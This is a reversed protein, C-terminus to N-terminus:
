VRRRRTMVAVGAAAAATMMMAWLLVNTSDGTTTEPTPEKFIVFLGDGNSKYKNNADDSYTGDGNPKVEVLGDAKGDNDKDVPIYTKDDSTDDPTGNKDTYSGDENPTAETYPDNENAGPIYTKDEDDDFDGDGNNDASVTGDDNKKTDIINLVISLDAPADNASRMRPFQEGMPNVSITINQSGSALSDLYGRDFQITGDNAVTYSDEEVVETGNLISNITNGNLAVKIEPIDMNIDQTYEYHSEAVSSDTFLVIGESNVITINGANDTAKAYIILKANPDISFEQTYKEWVLGNVDNETLEKDSVYYEIGAIGSYNDSATVKVDKTEKFFKNFTVSNLFEKWTNGNVNIEVSPGAVPITISVESKVEQSDHMDAKVAYARVTYELTKENNLGEEGELTFEEEYKIRTASTSPDTGDITYYIDAGETDGAIAVIVDSIYAGNEKTGKLTIVPAEVTGTITATTTGKIGGEPVDYNGAGSGSLTIVYTVTKDKGVDATEFEGKIDITVRGAEVDAALVPDVAAVELEAEVTGNYERDRASVTFDEKTLAREAVTFVMEGFKFTCSDFDATQEGTVTYKGPELKSNAYVESSTGNEDVYKGRFPMGPIYRVKEGNCTINDIDFFAGVQEGYEVTRTSGVVPVYYEDLAKATITATTKGTIGNAPIDYNEAGEGSLTIVYNVTKDNGAKSDEFEGEIDITVKGADVDEALVPDVATVELEVTANEDYEKDKATVVFDDEALTREVVSLVMEDFNFVCIDYDATQTGTVTYTGVPFTTFPFAEGQNNDEDIYIGRFPMGTIYNTKEGNLTMNSIDFFAGLQEGYEVTRTSDTLPVYYQDLAPSSGPTNEVYVVSEQGTEVTVIAYNDTEEGDITYTATSTLKAGDETVVHYGTETIKYTGAPLIYTNTWGDANESYAGIAGLYSDTANALTVKLPEFKTNEDICEIKVTADTKDWNLESEEVLYKKTVALSGGANLDNIAKIADLYKTPVDVGYGSGDNEADVLKIMEEYEDDSLEVKIRDIAHIQEVVAAANNVDIDKAAPLENIMEAITCVTCDDSNNCHKQAANAELGSVPLGGILMAFAVLIALVKRKQKM